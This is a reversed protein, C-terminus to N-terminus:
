LKLKNKSFHAQLISIGEENSTRWSAQNTAGPFAKDTPRAIPRDLQHKEARNSLVGVHSQCHQGFAWALPGQSEKQPCTGGCLGFVFVFLDSSSSMPVETMGSGTSLAPVALSKM